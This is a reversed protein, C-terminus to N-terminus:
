KSLDKLGSKVGQLDRTVLHLYQMRLWLPLSSLFYSAASAGAGTRRYGKKM